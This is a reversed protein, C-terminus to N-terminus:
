LQTIGFVNTDDRLRWLLVGYLLTVSMAPIYEVDCLSWIALSMAVMSAYKLIYIFRSLRNM